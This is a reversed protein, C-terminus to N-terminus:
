EVPVKAVQQLYETEKTRFTVVQSLSSRVMGLEQTAITIIENLDVSNSIEYERADNAIRLRDLEDERERVDKALSHTQEVGVLMLGCLALVAAGSLIGLVTLRLKQMRLARAASATAKRGLPKIRVQPRNEYTEKRVVNGEIVSLPRNHQQASRRNNM